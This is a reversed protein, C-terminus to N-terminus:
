VQIWTQRARAVLRGDQGFLATGAFIKRGQRGLSWGLVVCPEGVKVQGTVAGTM